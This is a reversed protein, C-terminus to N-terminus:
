LFRQTTFDIDIKVDVVGPTKEAIERIESAVQSEASVDTMANVFVTGGKAKVTVDPIVSVLKAKLKAALALDDLVSQSEPTVKFSALGATHCIVDVADDVAVQGTNIVLGYLAPDSTEVGYLKLGWQRREEDVKKVLQLAEEGSINERERVLRVRDELDAIVRVKLVHKVGRLFLHGAFGHYVINDKQAQELLTAEIFAIYNQKWNTLRDLISPADALAKTLSIEPINFDESAAILLDRSICPCGLRQAVKEAIQKGYSYSGRSITIVAMTRGM